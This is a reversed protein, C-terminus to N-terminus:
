CARTMEKMGCDTWGSGDVWFGEARMRDWYEACEDCGSVPDCPQKCGKEHSLECMSVLHSVGFESAVEVVDADCDMLECSCEGREIHLGITWGDALHKMGYECILNMADILQQHSPETHQGVLRDVSASTRANESTM